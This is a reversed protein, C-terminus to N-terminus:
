NFKRLGCKFPFVTYIQKFHKLLLNVILSFAVFLAVEYSGSLKKQGNIISASECLLNSTQAM